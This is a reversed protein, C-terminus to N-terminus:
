TWDLLIMEMWLLLKLEFLPYGLCLYLVEPVSQQGQAAHEKEKWFGGGPPHQVLVSFAQILLDLVEEHEKLSVTRLFTTLSSVISSCLRMRDEETDADPMPSPDKSEPDPEPLPDGKLLKM